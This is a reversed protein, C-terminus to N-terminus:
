DFNFPSCDWSKKDEHFQILVLEYTAVTGAMALFLKRTVNFFKLGTLAVQDSALEAAFRFVEPHYGKLPVLRLLHLPKRAQDNIASVYLLVATSRSLLFLLSFYFYVAHASSPMTNISKLLQLCIFYLNSGFSILMIGSVADDVERILEVISRYLTRSWTWYAEPMPQRVQQELSRNLRAMMESLGIGLMMLFIDMYSWGFTLLVNQIKGLWALWNSYPFVEFLQASTGHLYSEVPNRRRPCFDYYVVSIISLLHEMLSVTLLVFAVLKLRRAPRARQLCCNYGPLRQEVAAWHRMLGPWLKALNLFQWSAFLISVHFVIPEVSRVDLVSHAVKHISFALDVTTSCLYLSSYWFRWSRRSFSLGRYTPASIGSVPMLCFCQAVALVPAVAEHFSGDHLFNKRTGRVQSERFQDLGGKLNKLWIKGQMKLHRVARNCRNREKLRRM